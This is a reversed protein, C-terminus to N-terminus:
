YKENIIKCLIEARKGITEKLEKETANAVDKLTKFKKLLKKATKPGIGPFGELIFQLREKKNLSKKNVNLPLEKPRRKALICLFKATDLYDKTFLIPVHYKLLISLLFGRVSNPHMGVMNESDNYLEEERIGEVILLKNPYQGLEELQKLLRKNIMSSIFDSVTKREVVIGKTIYDAIKLNKFEIDMGLSTLESPILSNKERYDMIIKPKKKTKEPSKKSFISFIKKM